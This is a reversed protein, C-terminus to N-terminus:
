LMVAAYPVDDLAMAWFLPTEALITMDPFGAKIVALVRGTEVQNM